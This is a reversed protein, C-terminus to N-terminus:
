DLLPSDVQHHHVGLISGAPKAQGRANGILEEVLPGVYDGGAVVHPVLALDDLIHLRNGLIAVITGPPHQPRGVIGGARGPVSKVLTFQGRSLRIGDDIQLIREAHRIGQQLLNLGFPNQHIKM